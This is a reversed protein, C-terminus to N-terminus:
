SVVRCNSNKRYSISNSGFSFQSTEGGAKRKESKKELGIKKKKKGRQVFRAVSVSM